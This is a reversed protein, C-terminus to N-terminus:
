YMTLSGDLKNIRIAYRSPTFDVSIILIKGADASELGLQMKGSGENLNFDETVVWGLDSLHYYYTSLDDVTTATEYTYQKYTVGNETGTSVGIVKREAGIVANISPIKDTGFDYETLKAASDCGTLLFTAALILTIILTLRKTTINM